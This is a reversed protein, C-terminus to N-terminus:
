CRRGDAPHFCRSSRGTRSSSRVPVILCEGGSRADWTVIRTSLGHPGVWQVFLEPETHARMLQAPTAIFDRTMRIMPVTRDAAIMTDNTTTM